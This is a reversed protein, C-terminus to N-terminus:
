GIEGAKERIEKLIESDELNVRKESHLQVGSIIAGSHQYELVGLERLIRMSFYVAGLSCKWQQDSNIREPLTYIDFKQVGIGEQKKFYRYVAVTDGRNPVDASSLELRQFSKMKQHLGVSKSESFRIDKILLRVSQKGNYTNIDAEFAIDVRDGARYCFDMPAVNFYFATLRSNGCRFNLRMHNGNATPVAELIDADMFCFVPMENGRGFPSLKNLERIQGVTLDGDKLVCDLEISEDFQDNQLFLDVEKCLAERFVELKDTRVLVGAAFAHGGYKELYPSLQELADFLNFPRVSRGSGKAYEGNVTFLVCPKGYRDKLRSAVIGIVGNHWESHWLVIASRKHHEPDSEIMEIAQELIKNETAQRNQNEQCLENVLEEARKTDHTTLLEVGLQASGMRGAANIRPAVAFGITSTDIVRDGVCRDLLLQLGPSDFTKLQELGKHVIYRNEGRMPMIDAVTGIAAFPTYRDAADGNGYRYDLACVLKYVVGVGALEAFPYGSGPCKPNLILTDPLISQCEHHDTIIVDLGLLKAEEVEKVATIGTDVTILLGTGGAAIMQVAASNVGYGETFRSPIYFDANGGLERLVQLLLATATIGDVDYDGYVTIREHNQIAKAIRDVIPEMNCFLFPDLLSEASANLFSKARDASVIGRNLLVRAFFHSCGLASRLASVAEDSQKLIKWKRM